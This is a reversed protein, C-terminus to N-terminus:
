LDRDDGPRFFFVDAPLGTLIKGLERSKLFAARRDDAGDGPASYKDTRKRKINASRFAEEERPNSEGPYARIRM